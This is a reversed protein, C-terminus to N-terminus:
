FSFPSNGPNIIVNRPGEVEGLTVIIYYIAVSFMLLSTLEYCSALFPRGRRRRSLKEKGGLSLTKGKPSDEM